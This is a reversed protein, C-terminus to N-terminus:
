AGSYLTSGDASWALSTCFPQLAKRSRHEEQLLAVTLFYLHASWLNFV